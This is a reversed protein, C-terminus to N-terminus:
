DCINDVIKLDSANGYSLLGFLREKKEGEFYDYPCVAHVYKQSKLEPRRKSLESTVSRDFVGFDFNHEPQMLHGASYGILEGAKVQINKGRVFKTRSSSAAPGPFAGAIKDSVEIIHDYYYRVNCSVELHLLYQELDEREGQGTEEIYKVGDSLISDAPAYVPVIEEVNIYSHGKLNGAIEM